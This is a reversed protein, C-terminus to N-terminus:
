LTEAFREDLRAFVGLGIAVSVATYITALLLTPADPLQGHYALARITTIFPAMPSHALLPGYVPGLVDPTYVIPTAWFLVQLGIDLLHQIDRFLATTAAMVLALGWTFLFTLGLAVPMFVLTWPPLRGIWLYCAPLLVALALLLQVFNFLVTASPLVLRPFYVNKVMSGSDVVASTAMRASVSFFTWALVGILMLFAFGEVRSPYVYTFVAGYTVTMMLPNALSWLLGFFSGRYKLTLDRGVLMRLLTRQRTVVEWVPEHRRPPVLTGTVTVGTAQRWLRAYRWALLLGTSLWVQSAAVPWLGDPLGFSAAAVGLGLATGILSGGAVPVALSAPGLRHHIVAISAAQSVAVCGALPLWQASWEGVSLAPLCLWRALALSVCAVLLDVPVARLLALRIVPTM